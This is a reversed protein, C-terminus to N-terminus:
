WLWWACPMLDIEIVIQKMLIFRVIGIIIGKGISILCDGFGQVQVVNPDLSAFECNAIQALLDSRAELQPVLYEYDSDTVVGGDPMVTFKSVVMTGDEFEFGINFEMTKTGDGNDIATSSILSLDLSNGSEVHVSYVLTGFRKVPPRPDDAAPVM